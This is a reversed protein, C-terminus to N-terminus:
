GAVPSLTRAPLGIMSRAQDPTAIKRELARALQALREVLERNSAPREKRADLWLNDELGVRVHGGMAIALSNVFFQFRGIGAGAWTSGEPLSAALTALNVATASLTGLSGLLLNFVLPRRLVDRELLFKAYDAMGFDFVELEPVIGRQNMREALDHIMQPNTVSAQQPFNLSGLTLSALDPKVDGELELVEAREELTKFTRGSTSVCVIVEPSRERVAQIIEAYVEKRSTPRGEADRAHLHVIAAGAEVCRRADEAIEDPTVPVAANDAKTPIMGTLAANIILPAREANV